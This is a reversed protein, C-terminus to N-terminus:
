TSDVPDFVCGAKMVGLLAIPLWDSHALSIAIHAGLELGYDAIIKRALQDSLENVEEYSQQKGDFSVAVENKKHTVAQQFLELVSSSECPKLLGSSLQVEREKQTGVLVNTEHIPEDPQLIVKDILQRLNVLFNEISSRKFLDSNYELVLRINEDTLFRVSLDYKSARWVPDIPTVRISDLNSQESANYVSINLMEVLVDFLPSRSTDRPLDLETVLQDFPYQQHDYAELLNEKVHALFAAFSKQPDITDRLAITNVYFGIQDELDRHERGSVTSGVTLDCQGTYKYLLVKVTSLLFMFLSVGHSVSFDQMRSVLQEDFDFSVEDGRFTKVSPRKFDTPFDLMPVHGSFKQRWFQRHKEYAGSELQQHQWNAYDRYQLAKAEPRYDLQQLTGNYYRILENVMVETSWGDSIIHHVNLLLTHDNPAKRILVVKLPPGLTLDFVNNAQERLIANLHNDSEVAFFRIDCQYQEAPVIRQRPEGDRTIFVTRLSENQKVLIDFANLLADQDVPGSLQYANVMNYAVQNEKFQSLIWLRRQAHSLPHDTADAVRPISQFTGRDANQILMAQDAITTAKLVSSLKLDVQFQQYIRSVLQIARLSNGGTEFFEAHRSIKNKSLVERWITQLAYETQSAPPEYNENVVDEPLPLAKRDVKGTLTTPMKELHVYYAPISSIALDNSLAQHWERVDLKRGTYYCCILVRGELRAKGVVVAQNIGDVKAACREVEELEVRIGNVKVQNDIRGLIQLSHDELYHGLDGTKYILDEYDKVFPNQVFALRTRDPDRYYGKSMYPTRIYVEGIEGIACLRMQNNLVALVTDPIPKGVDLAGVEDEDEDVFNVRKFSKVMTTESPGYLNIIDAKSKTLKRWRRVDEAYLLEGALLVRKLNPFSNEESGYEVLSMLSRFLSPVCHITSIKKTRIFDILLSHNERQQDTPVCVTAGSCLPTFVDRLYADFAVPSFQSVRDQNTIDFEKIEWDIFHTVSSHKGLIAKPEGTSGSTFYIYCGHEPDSTSLDNLDSLEQIDKTFLKWEKGTCEYIKARLDKDAKSLEIMHDGAKATCFSEKWEGGLDIDSILCRPKCHNFAHKIRSKSAYKDLPMYVLQSKFIALLSTIQIFADSSAVAIVCEQPFQLAKLLGKLRNANANLESYSVSREGYEIAKHRPVLKVQEEFMQHVFNQQM